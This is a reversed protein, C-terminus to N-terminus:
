EADKVFVGDVMKGKRDKIDNWATALCKEISLNNREAINVLVVIIDGIDDAVPKQKAIYDALEGVESVLKAFQSKDDSGDILNRDYHWQCIKSILSPVLANEYDNTNFALNKM